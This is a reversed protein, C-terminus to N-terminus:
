VSGTRHAHLHHVHLIASHQGTYIHLELPSRGRALSKSEPQKGEQCFDLHLSDVRQHLEPRVERPKKGWAPPLPHLRARPDEPGAPWGVRGGGARHSRGATPCKYILVGAACGPPCPPCLGFHAGGTFSLVRSLPM